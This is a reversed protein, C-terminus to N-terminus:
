GSAFGATCAAAWHHRDNLMRGVDAALDLMISKYDWQISEILASVNAKLEASLRAGGCKRVAHRARRIRQIIWHRQIVKCPPLCLVCRSIATIQAEDM